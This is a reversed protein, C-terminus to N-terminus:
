FSALGYSLRILFFELHAQFDHAQREEPIAALDPINPSPLIIM